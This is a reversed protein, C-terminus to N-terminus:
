RGYNFVSANSKDRMEANLNGTKLKILTFWLVVISLIACNYERKREEARTDVSVRVM